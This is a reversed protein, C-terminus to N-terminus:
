DEVQARLPNYSNSLWRIMEPWLYLPRQWPCEPEFVFAGGILVPKLPLGASPLSCWWLPPTNPGSSWMRAITGNTGPAKKIPAHFSFGAEALDAPQTM